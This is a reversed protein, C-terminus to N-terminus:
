NSGLEALEENWLQEIKTNPEHKKSATIVPTDTNGTTKKPKEGEAKPKGEKKTEQTKVQTTQGTKAKNGASLDKVQGQTQLDKRGGSGIQSLVEDVVEKREEQGFQATYQKTIPGTERTLRNTEKIPSTQNSAQTEQIFRQQTTLPITFNRLMSTTRLNREQEELLELKKMQVEESLQKIEEHGMRIIQSGGERLTNLKKTIDENEKFLRNKLDSVIRPYNKELFQIMIKKKSKLEQDVAYVKALDAKHNEVINKTEELFKKNRLEYKMKKGKLGNM